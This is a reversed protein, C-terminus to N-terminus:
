AATAAIRLAADVAAVVAAIRLAAQMRELTLGRKHLESELANLSAAGGHIAAVAFCGLEFDLRDIDSQSLAAMSLNVPESRLDHNRLLNIAEYYTANMAMVVAASKAARRAAPSLRTETEVELALILPRGGTAYACALFCVWKQQESLLTENSLTDLNHKQDQAFDPLADRLVALSM